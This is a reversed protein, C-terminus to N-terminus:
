RERCGRPDGATEEAGALPDPRVGATAEAREVHRFPSTTPTPQGDQGPVLECTVLRVTGVGKARQLFGEELRVDIEHDFAVTRLRRIFFGGYYEVRDPFVKRETARTSSSGSRRSPCSLSRCAAWCSRCFSPAWDDSQVLRKGYEGLAHLGLARALGTCLLLWLCWVFFQAPVVLPRIVRLPSESMLRRRYSAEPTPYPLPTVATGEGLFRVHLNGQMRSM